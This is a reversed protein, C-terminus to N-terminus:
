PKVYADLTLTFSVFKGDDSPKVNIKDVHATRRNSELKELFTLFNSYPVPESELSSVDIELTYVGKIGEVPKVQTISPQPAPAPSPTVTTSTSGSSANNNAQPAQNQTAQGLSSTDFSITSLYIGSEEALKTLERVTKAQDKDQPVIARTIDNLETYTEIDKKAQTLQTQQQEIVKNQIKVSNLKKAQDKILVSGYVVSLALGSLLIFNIGIMLFYIKRSTM